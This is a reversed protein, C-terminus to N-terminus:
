EWQIANASQDFIVQSSKIEIVSYKHPEKKKKITGTKKSISEIQHLIITM